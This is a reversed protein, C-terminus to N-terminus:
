KNLIYILILYSSVWSGLRRSTNSDTPSATTPVGTTPNGTPQVSPVPSTTPSGTTHPSATTPSPTPASTPTTAFQFNDYVFTSGARKVGNTTLSGPSGIVVTDGGYICSSWGFMSHYYDNNTPSPGLLKYQFNWKENVWNYVYVAGTAGEFPSGIVMMNGDIDVTNGFYATGPSSTSVDGTIIQSDQVWTVNDIQRFTLVYGNNTPGGERSSMAVKGNSIAVDFGLHSGTSGPVKLLTEWRVGNYIYIYGNGHTDEHPAGVVFEDGRDFDVSFGHLSRAQPIHPTIVNGLVWNLGWNNFINVNGSEDVQEVRASPHGVALTYNKMVVRNGFYGDRVRVLPLLESHLEWHTGNDEYVYVKGSRDQLFAGVTLWEDFVSISNGFRDGDMGDHAQVQRHYSWVGNGTRQYTFVLGQSSEGAVDAGVAIMDGKVSVSTGFSDYAGIVLPTELTIQRYPQQAIAAKLLLLLLFVGNMRKFIYNM